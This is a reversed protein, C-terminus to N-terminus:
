GFLLLQALKLRFRRLRSTAAAVPLASGGVRLTYAVITGGGIVSPVLWRLLMPVAHANIVVFATVASVYAAILAAFHALLWGNRLRPGYFGLVDNLGFCIAITGIGILAPRISLLLPNAATIGLAAAGFGAAIVVASAAVDIGDQLASARRRRRRAVVRYGNLILYGSVIGLPVLFFHGKEQWMFGASLLVVGMAVGFGFGFRRHWTGGKRVFFAAPAAFLAISGFVVHIVTVV